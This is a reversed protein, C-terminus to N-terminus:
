ARSPAPSRGSSPPSAIATCKVSCPSAFVCLKCMPRRDFSVTQLRCFFRKRILADEVRGQRFRWEALSSRAPSRPIAVVFGACDRHKTRTRQHPSVPSGAPVRSASSGCERVGFAVRCLLEDVVLDAAEVRDEVDEVHQDRERHITGRQRITFCARGVHELACASRCTARWPMVRCGPAASSGARSSIVASIPPTGPDHRCRGRRNSPARTSTM